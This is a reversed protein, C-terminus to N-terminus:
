LPLIFLSSTFLDPPILYCVGSIFVCVQMKLENWQFIVLHLNLASAPFCFLSQGKRTQILRLCKCPINREPKPTYVFCVSYLHWGSCIWRFGKTSFIVRSARTANDSQAENSLFWTWWLSKFFTSLPIAIVCYELHIFHTKFPAHLPWAGGRQHEPDSGLRNPMEKLPCGNWTIRM